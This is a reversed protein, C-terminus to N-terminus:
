RMFKTRKELFSERNTEFNSRLYQKTNTQQIVPKQKKSRDLIKTFTEYRFDYLDPLLSKASKKKKNFEDVKVIKIGNDWTEVEPRQQKKLDNKNEITDIYRQSTSPRISNKFVYHGSIFQDFSGPFLSEEGFLEAFDHNCRLIKCQDIFPAWDFLTDISGILWLVSKKFFIENNIFANYFNSFVYLNQNIIRGYQRKQPRLHENWLDYSVVKFFRKIMNHIGISHGWTDLLIDSHVSSDEGIREFFEFKLEDPIYKLMRGNKDIIGVWIYVNNKKQTTGKFHINTLSIM